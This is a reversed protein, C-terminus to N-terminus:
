GAGDYSAAMYQYGTAAYADYSSFGGAISDVYHPPRSLIMEYGFNDKIHTHLRNIDGIVKSINDLHRRKGYIVNKKGFLVHSYTHNTLEHGGSIIREIIEPCNVAGGDNDKHIDPYHDYQIGGWAASGEKGAEDPYNASTDGVIDFTGKAGFKELSELLSITLPVNGGGPSAPLRCPGDDFTMACVRQDTKVKEIRRVPSLLASKDSNSSDSLRHKVKKAIGISKTVISM